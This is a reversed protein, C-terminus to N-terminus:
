NGRINLLRKFFSGMSDGLTPPLPNEERFKDFNELSGFAKNINDINSGRGALQQQRPDQMRAQIMREIFDKM